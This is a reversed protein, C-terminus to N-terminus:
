REASEEGNRRRKSRSFQRKVTEIRSLKAQKDTSTMLHGKKQLTPHDTQFMQFKYFQPDKCKDSFVM